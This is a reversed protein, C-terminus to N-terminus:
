QDVKLREVVYADMILHIIHHLVCILLVISNRPFLSMQLIISLPLTKQGGIFLISERDGKKRGSILILGWCFLLLFGHYVTVLMVVAFVKMGSNSTISATQSIAIWVILLIFLQCAITIKQEFRALLAPYIQRLLMGVILPLIVLCLIKFTVASKNIDISVNEGFVRLLIPLTYPITFISLNNSIITVVLAHAANGGASATMVMGSSLTSPMVSVLFLGLIMGKDMPILSLAVALAPAVIFIISLTILTGSVDMLGEEFQQFGLTFGSLLFLCAMIVEPGYNNKLFRGITSLNDSQGSVSILGIALLATLFWYRQVFQKLYTRTSHIFTM